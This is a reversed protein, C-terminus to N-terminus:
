QSNVKGHRRKSGRKAGPFVTRESYRAQLTGLTTEGDDSLYMEQALGCIVCSMRVAVWSRQDSMGTVTLQLHMGPLTKAQCLCALLQLTVASCQLCPAAM